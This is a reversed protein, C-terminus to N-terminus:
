SPLRGILDALLTAVGDGSTALSKRLRENELALREVELRATLKDLGLLKARGMTASVAAGAQPPDSQLAADRAEALEQLLADVTIANREAAQERLEAIRAAIAPRRQLKHAQNNVTAPKMRETQYARRYADSASIPPYSCALAQAFAEQKETLAM